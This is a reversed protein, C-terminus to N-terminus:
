LQQSNDKTRRKDSVLRNNTETEILNGLLINHDLSVATQDWCPRNRTTM